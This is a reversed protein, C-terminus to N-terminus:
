TVSDEEEETAEMVDEDNGNLAKDPSIAITPFSAVVTM